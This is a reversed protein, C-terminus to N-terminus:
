LNTLSWSVKFWLSFKLKLKLKSFYMCFNKSLIDNELFKKFKLKVNIEEMIEREIAMKPSEGNKLSGGFVGWLGPFYIDHRTDRKQLIYIKLYKKPLKWLLHNGLDWFKIFIMWLM